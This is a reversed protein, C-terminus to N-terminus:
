IFRASRSVHTLANQLQRCLITHVKADYLKTKKLKARLGSFMQSEDGSSDSDVDGAGRSQEKPSLKDSTKGVM